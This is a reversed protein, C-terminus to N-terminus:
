HASKGGPVEVPTEIKGVTPIACEVVDGVSLYQADKSPTGSKVFVVDGPELTTRSAFAVIKEIPWEPVSVTGRRYDNKNIRTILTLLNPNAIEDKTVLWPGISTFTDFLDGLGSVGTERGAREIDCAITDNVVTYGAIVDLAEAESVNKCKKGIIVGLATESMLENTGLPKAIKRQPGMVSGNSKLVIPPNDSPKRDSDWRVGILKSPPRTAIHVYCDDFPLFLPENDLGLAKRNTQAALKEIWPQITQLIAWAANGIQLFLAVHPPFRLTAIERAQFDGGVEELYKASCSRLAAIYGGDVMLGLRGM